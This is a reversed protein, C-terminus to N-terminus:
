YEWRREQEREWDDQEIRSGEGAVAAEIDAVTLGAEVLIKGVRPITWNPVWVKGSLCKGVGSTEQWGLPGPCPYSVSANTVDYLGGPRTYERLFEQGEDEGMSDFIETTTIGNFAPNSISGHGHCRECIAWVWGGNCPSSTSSDWSAMYVHAARMLALERPSAEDEAYHLAAAADNMALLWALQYRQRSVSANTQNHETM